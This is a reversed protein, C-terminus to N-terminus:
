SRDHEQVMLIVEQATDSREAKSLTNRVVSESIILNLREKLTAEPSVRLEALDKLAGESIDDYDRIIKILDKSYNALSPFNAKIANLKEIAKQRRGKIQPVANKSFLTERILALTESFDKNVEYSKESKNSLFLPLAQEVSVIQSDSNKEQLAFVSDNGKKGFVVTGEFEESIRKIRTRRPIDKIKFMLDNDKKAINYNEIHKADWSLEEQSMYALDFETKFYSKLEEEQTLHKTDSGIIANILNMKLTSIQKIRTEQEGILTPFFNFVFINDFVKKNIRNIRGVRQIVRTPNYPIDYNIIIGARHLNIGESLADTTFLVDYQNLAESKKISADFNRRIIQRFGSPDAATFKCTRPNDKFSDQLYNITDAYSSFVVIKRKPNSDILNNIETKLQQLKPDYESFSHEGFWQDYISNLIETDSILDEHFKDGDSLMERPITILGKNVRLEELESFFETTYEGDEDTFDDPDPLEGKKYIPVIGLKFWWEEVLKNTIIMRELTTKFANKSSEFRMVLLRKMHKALNIQAVKLGREEFEDGYKAIFAELDLGYSTPMYRAAKYNEVLDDLTKAYLEALNGLDYQILEPGVVEPFSIAQLELDEKYKTIQKLDLRSRRIVVNEILKRQEIAISKTESNIEIQDVEGKSIGRRLKTYREILNRFRFSLNDVSNLTAFGPIQFLKILAFVDKPANNFPTATLLIVKNDINGRTIKHLMKYDETDENRFRHAEDIILLIPKNIDIFRNYVDVIKGSSYVKAARLHFDEKYDEWQSIIHPPSIIVTLYQDFNRAIAAAIVSKGLGVVDAIIVGDYKNLRDIGMKIADIQYELDSYLGGTLKKPTLIKDTELDFIEDLVRIYMEYPSPLSYKWVRKKIEDVFEIWNLREAISVGKEWMEDFKQCYEKHKEMERSSDNLEGQGFLGSYTFNSSGMIVTGPNDGNHSYAEQNHIIYAKAHHNKETKKIELTGNAVKKLFLELVKETELNDFIDSDNIFGVLADIYNSRLKISSNTENRPQYRDFDVENEKAKQVIIPILEADIEMGVLIRIKLDSISDALQEFGSFYFYGTMIDLRDATSIANILADRMTRDKNDILAM